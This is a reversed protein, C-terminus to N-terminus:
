IEGIKIAYRKMASLIDKTFQKNEMMENNVTATCVVKGLNFYKSEFM